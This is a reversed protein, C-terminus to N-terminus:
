GQIQLSNGFSSKASRGSGRRIHRVVLPHHDQVGWKKDQRTREDKIQQFINKM